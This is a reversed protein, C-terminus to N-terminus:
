KQLEATIQDDRQRGEDAALQTEEERFDREENFPSYIVEPIWGTDGFSGGGTDCAADLRTQAASDTTQKQSGGEDLTM